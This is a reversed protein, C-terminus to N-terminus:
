PGGAGSATANHRQRRPCIHYALAGSRNSGYGILLDMMTRRERAAEDLAFRSLMMRSVMGQSDLDLVLVRRGHFLALGEAIM